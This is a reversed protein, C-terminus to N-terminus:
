SRATDRGSETAREVSLGHQLSDDGSGECHDVRDNQPEVREGNKRECQV